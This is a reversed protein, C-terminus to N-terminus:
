NKLLARAEAAMELLRFRRVEAYFDAVEGIHQKQHNDLLQQHCDADNLLDIDQKVGALGRLVMACTYGLRPLRADGRWGAEALGDLYGAFVARDLEGCESYTLGEYYASVAVLAVLEEGLAAPGVMAWDILFVEQRRHLINRRFADIHCLAKPLAGLAQIFTAREQWIAQIRAKAKLPLTRGALPNELYCELNHFSEALGPVIACHWDQSLWDREPLMRGTLYAGNFRGLRGAIARYDDFTWELKLDVIDEMWIWCCAGFDELAYIQPTAFADPPLDDLLRSRYVEYERKWYYPSRQDEDARRYLVKLIASWTKGCTTRGSFRHIATGGKAGGFGGSVPERSWSRLRVSSDGLARRAIETLKGKSITELRQDQSREPAGFM